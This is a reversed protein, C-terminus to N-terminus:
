MFEVEQGFGRKVLHSFKSPKMPDPNEQKTQKTKNTPKVNVEIMIM